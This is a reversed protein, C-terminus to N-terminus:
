QLLPLKPENKGEFLIKKNDVSYTYINKFFTLLMVNVRLGENEQVWNSLREVREMENIRMYPISIM